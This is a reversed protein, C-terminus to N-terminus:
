DVSVQPACADRARRVAQLCKQVTACLQEAVLDVVPRLPRTADVVVCISQPEAGKDDVPVFRLSGDILETAVDLESTLAVYGGTLVLQKVLQLSNTEIMRRPEAFLWNHKTELYRRISLSRSQLAVSFAAADQLSVSQASALPHSAAVVCGLPLEDRWLMLFERRPPPNFVVALDVMGTLLASVAEDTNSVEISLSILSHSTALQTVLAPLFSTAHSDMAALHVIGLPMDQLERVQAIARREDDRWRRALTVIADGAVTLQMGRPLRDFLKVGLEGEIQLIHRHIASPAINLERAARQISGSRAVQDVYRLVSPVISHFM